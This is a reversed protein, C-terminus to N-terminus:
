YVKCANQRLPLGVHIECGAVGVPSPVIPKLGANELGIHFGPLHGEVGYCSLLYTLLALIGINHQMDIALKIKNLGYYVM